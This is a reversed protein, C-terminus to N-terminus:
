APRITAASSASAITAPAALGVARTISAPRIVIPRPAPMRVGDLKKTM